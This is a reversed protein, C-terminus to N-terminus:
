GDFIAHALRSHDARTLSILISPDQDIFARAGAEDGALVANIFRLHVPSRRLLLDYVARHGFKLAVDHPSLGFGLTWCYIHFPPVPAYGGDNIRAAVAEPDANLVRTALAVDGLRSPMFIDVSAGRELLRRCVEPREALAYQAATSKHDICR